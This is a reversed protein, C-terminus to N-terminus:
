QLQGANPPLGNVSLKPIDASSSRRMAVVLGSLYLSGFIVLRILFSTTVSAAVGIGLLALAVSATLDIWPVSLLARDTVVVFAVFMVAYSILTASASGNLGFRPVLLLNLALNAVGGSLIVVSMTAYQLHLELPRNVYTTFGSLWSSLALIPLVIAASRYSSGAVTVLLDTPWLAAVFLPGITFWFYLQLSRRLASVTDSPTSGHWAILVTPWAVLMVAQGTTTIARDAVSYAVSYHGVTASGEYHNLVFRDVLANMWGGIAFPLAVLSIPLLTHVYSWSFRAPGRVRGSISLGALIAGGLCAGASAAFIASPSRYGLLFAITCAALRVGGTIVESLLYRGDLREARVLNALFTYLEGLAASVGALVLVATPAEVLGVQRAILACASYVFVFLLVEVLAVSVLLQGSRDENRAVFYYRFAVNRLSAPGLVSAFSAIALIVAYQGFAETTLNRTAIPLLLFGLGQGVLVSLLYVVGRGLDGRAGGRGVARGRLKQTVRTM